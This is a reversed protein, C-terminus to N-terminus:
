LISDYFGGTMEILTRAARAFGRGGRGEAIYTPLCTMRNAFDLVNEVGCANPFFSFMPEDNPSDGFFLVRAELNSIGEIKEFYLKSLSLKDYAGYWANVHISSLKCIAGLERCKQMIANVTEDSLRPKDEAFDFAVDYLRCFQDQSLRAGPVSSLVACKLKDLAPAPNEAANPHLLTQIADQEDRYLAFAGNECIIAKVPWQRIMLDCWGAPRGTVPILSYGARFLAWMACYADDTLKGNTTITDDIDFLIFRIDRAADPPIRNFSQLKMMDM